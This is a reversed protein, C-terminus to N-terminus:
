QKHTSALNIAAKAMDSIAPVLQISIQDVKIALSEQGRELRAMDDRLDDRRVYEKKVEDIKHHLDRSSRSIRGNLVGYVTALSGLGSLLLAGLQIWFEPTM